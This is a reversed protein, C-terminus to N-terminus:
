LADGGSRSQRRDGRRARRFDRLTQQLVASNRDLFEESMEFAPEVLPPETLLDLPPLEYGGDSPAVTAVAQPEPMVPAAPEVQRRLM